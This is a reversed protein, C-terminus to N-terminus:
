STSKGSVATKSPTEESPTESFIGTDGNEPGDGVSMKELAAALVYLSLCSDREKSNCRDSKYWSFHWIKQENM